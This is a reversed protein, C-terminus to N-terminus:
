ASPKAQYINYHNLDTTTLFGVITDADVVPLRDISNSKMLGAASHIPKSSNVTVVPTTMFSGVQVTTIDAGTAVQEMLDSETVIGNMANTESDLVVASGIHEDAFLQAVASATWEETITQVTSQMVDAVSQEIMSTM